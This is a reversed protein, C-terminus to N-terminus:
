GAGRVVMALLEVAAMDLGNQRGEVYSECKEALLLDILHDTFREGSACSDNYARLIRQAAEDRTM